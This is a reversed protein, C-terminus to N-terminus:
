MGKIRLQKITRWFDFVLSTGQVELMLQEIVDYYAVDICVLIVQFVTLIHQQLM